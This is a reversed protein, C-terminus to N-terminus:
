VSGSCADVTPFALRHLPKRRRPTCPGTSSALDQALAQAPLHGVLAVARPERLICEGLHRRDRAGGRARKLANM